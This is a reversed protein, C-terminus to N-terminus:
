ILFGRGFVVMIKIEGMMVSMIDFVEESEGELFEVLVFVMVM